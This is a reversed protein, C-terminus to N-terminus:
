QSTLLHHSSNVPVRGFSVATCSANTSKAQHDITRPQCQQQIQQQQQALWQV